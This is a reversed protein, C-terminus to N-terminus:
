RNKRLSQIEGKLYKREEELVKIEAKLEENEDMQAKLNKECIDLNNQAKILEDCFNIATLISIKMPKLNQGNSILNIKERVKLCLHELYERSESGVITYESGLLSITIKNKENM